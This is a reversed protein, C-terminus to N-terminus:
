ASGKMIGTSVLALRLAAYKTTLEVLDNVIQNVRTKTLTTTAAASLTTVATATFAAQNASAPQDVPTVGYFSILDSVSQGLVTGDPNGDSLQKIPM